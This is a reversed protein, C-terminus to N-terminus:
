KKSFRILTASVKEPTGNHNYEYGIFGYNEGIKWAEDEPNSRYRMIYCKIDKNFAKIKVQNISDCAYRYWNKCDKERYNCLVKGEKINEQFFPQDDDDDNQLFKKMNMKPLASIKIKYLSIYYYKLDPTKILIFKKNVPKPKGEDTYDGPHGKVVAIKYGDKREIYNIVKMQSNFSTHYQKENKTYLLDVKFTWQTGVSMPITQAYIIRGALLLILVWLSQKM